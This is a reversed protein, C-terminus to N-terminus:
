FSGNKVTVECYLKSGVLVFTDDDRWKVDIPKAPVGKGKAICAGSETDYVAMHHNDDGAVLVCKAGSTSFACAIVTKEIDNGTLCHIPECTSSDWIYAKPRRGNEGTLCRKGDPHFDMCTVDDTHKMFFKQTHQDPDYVVGVGAIYYALTGDSM